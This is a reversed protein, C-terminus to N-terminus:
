KGKEKKRQKMISAEREHINKKRQDGEKQRVEGELHIRKLHIQKRQNWAEDLKKHLAIERELRKEEAHARRREDEIM